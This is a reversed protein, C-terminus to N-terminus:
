VATLIMSTTGNTTVPIRTRTGNFQNYAMSTGGSVAATTWFFTYHAPGISVPINGYTQHLLAWETETLERPNSFGNAALANRNIVFNAQGEKAHGWGTLQLMWCNSVSVTYSVSNRNADTATIVASGSRWGTVKGTSADVTVRDGIVSFTYPRRGGEPLRTITKGPFDNIQNYTHQLLISQGSLTVPSSDIRLPSSLLYTTQPFVITQGNTDISCTIIIKNGHPVSNLWNRSVALNALGTQAESESIRYDSRVTLPVVGESNLELKFVQGAASFPWKTIAIYADGAFHKLELTGGDAIGNIFARPYDATST